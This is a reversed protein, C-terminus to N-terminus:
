RLKQSNSLFTPFDTYNQAINKHHSYQIAGRNVALHLATRKSFGEVVNGDLGAEVLARLVHARKKDKRRSISSNVAAFLVYNVHRRGNSDLAAPGPSELDAGKSIMYKVLDLNANGIAAILPNSMLKVREEDQIEDGDYLNARVIKDSVYQANLNAGADIWLKAVTNKNSIVSKILPTHGKEDM